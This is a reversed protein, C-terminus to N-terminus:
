TSHQTDTLVLAARYAARGAKKTHDVLTDWERERDQPSPARNRTMLTQVVGLLASASTLCFHIAAQEPQERYAQTETKQAQEREDPPLAALVTPGYFPISQLESRAMAQEIAQMATEILAVEPPTPSM